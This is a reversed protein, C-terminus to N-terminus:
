YAAAPASARGTTDVKGLVKWFEDAVTVGNPVADGRRLMRGGLVAAADCTSRLSPARQEISLWLTPMRLHIWARSTRRGIAWGVHHERVLDLMKWEPKAYVSECVFSGVTSARELLEAKAGPLRDRLDRTRQRAGQIM